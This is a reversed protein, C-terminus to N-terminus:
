GTGRELDILGGLEGPESSVSEFRGVLVLLCHPWVPIDARCGDALTLILLGRAQEREVDALADSVAEDWCEDADDGGVLQFVSGYYHIETKVCLLRGPFPAHLRSPRRNARITPTIKISTFRMM